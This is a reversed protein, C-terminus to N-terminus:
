KKEEVQKKDTQWIKALVVLMKNANFSGVPGKFDYTEIIKTLWEKEEQTLEMNKGGKQNTKLNL